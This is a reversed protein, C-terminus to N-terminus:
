WSGSAGGGGFSGGGFSGGSSSGSSSHNSPNYQSNLYAYTLVSGDYSYLTDGVLLRGFSQKKANPYISLLSGRKTARRIKGKTAFLTAGNLYLCYFSTKKMKNLVKKTQESNNLVAKTPLCNLYDQYMKKVLKRTRLIQLIYVACILMGAISAMLLVNRKTTNTNLETQINTLENDVQATKSNIAASVQDIIKNLGTNYDEDRFAEKVEENNIIDDAYSDTLISELGYGVELRSERDEIAMLFVVGNNKERDGVGLQNAIKNSYSEVSEGSPLAPVTILMFQAGNANELLQQNLQFMKQKLQNSVIGANDSVYINADNINLQGNTGTITVLENEGTIEQKSFNNITTQTSAKTMKGALIDDRKKQLAHQKERLATQKAEYSIGKGEYWAAMGLILIMSLSIVVVITTNRQHKKYFLRVKEQIKEVKKDM